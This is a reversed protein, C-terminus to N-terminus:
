RVPLTIDSFKGVFTGTVDTANQTFAFVKDVTVGREGMWEIKVTCGNYRVDDKLLDAARRLASNRHLAAESLSRRIGVESGGIVCKIKVPKGQSGGVKELIQRLTDANSVEVYSAKTLTRGNPFAGKYYNGVDRVRVSPFKQKMFGEIEQIRQEASLGDPIGKFVLVKSHQDSGRPRESASRKGSGIQSAELKALRSRVEALEEQLPQVTEELRQDIARLQEDHYKDLHSRTVVETKIFSTLGALADLVKDLKDEQAVGVM